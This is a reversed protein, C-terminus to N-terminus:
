VFYNGADRSRRPRTERIVVPERLLTDNLPIIVVDTRRPRNIKAETRLRTKEDHSSSGLRQAASSRKARETARRPLLSGISLLFTKAESIEDRRDASLYM